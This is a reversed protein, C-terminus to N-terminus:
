KPTFKTPSQERNHSKPRFDFIVRRCTGIDNHNIISKVIVGLVSWVRLFVVMSIFSRNQQFFPSKSDFARQLGSGCTGFRVPIAHNRTYKTLKPWWHISSSIKHLAYTISLSLHVKQRGDFILARLLSKVMWYISRNIGKRHIQIINITYFIHHIFSLQSILWTRKTKQLSICNDLLKFKIGM